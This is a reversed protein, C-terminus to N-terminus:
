ATSNYLVKLQTSEISFISVNESSQSELKSLLEGLSPYGSRIADDLTLEAISKSSFKIVNASVYRDGDTLVVPQGVQVNPRSAGVVQTVNGQVVDTLTDPYLDFIPIYQPRAIGQEVAQVYERGLFIRHEWVSTLQLVRDPILSFIFNGVHPAAVIVTVGLMRAVRQLKDSVVSATVPDLNSCFEDIVWVNSKSIILKALQARFQQGKSLEKFRKLYIYADSLGVLGMLHLAAHVNKLNFADILPKQSRIIQFYGPRYNTPFDISGEMQLYDTESDSQILRNLLTTKGSGSPGTILLIEGPKVDISLRRIHTSCIEDPSINFAQQIAHAQHTRRVKSTYSLTVDKLQISDEIKHPRWDPDAVSRLLQLADARTHVFESAKETLGKVFTPKPLRVIDHLLAYDRLASAQSLNQILELFQEKTLGEEDMLKLAREMRNVQERVIAISDKRAVEGLQVREVNGLLYQLDRHVRHLNGETDGMYTMGAREAFPVYKLMDASIELFLPRLGGSHWHIKAFQEAHHILLQGLGLGRFETHVVCRAIRVIANTVNQRAAKDWHEWKVPGEEFPADMFRFRAKNMYFTTQLEIYGVVTPYLPHYSRIILRAHRGAPTSNRYHYDALAEYAVIEDKSTIEKIVVDLNTGGLRITDPAIYSPLIRALGNKCKVHLNSGDFIVVDNESICASLPLPIDYNGPVLRVIKQGNKWKISKTTYERTTELM